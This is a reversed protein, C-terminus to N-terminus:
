WLVTGDGTVSGTIVTKRKVIGRYCALFRTQISRTAFTVFTSYVRYIFPKGPKEAHAALHRQILLNWNRTRAAWTAPESHGSANQRVNRPSHKASAINETGMDAELFFLIRGTGNRTRSRSCVMLHSALPGSPHMRSPSATSFRHGIMPEDIVILDNRRIQKKLRLVQREERAGTTGHCAPCGHSPVPL